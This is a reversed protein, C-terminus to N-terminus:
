SLQRNVEGKETLVEPIPVFVYELLAAMQIKVKRLKTFFIEM